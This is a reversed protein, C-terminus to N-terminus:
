SCVCLMLNRPATEFQDVPQILNSRMRAIVLTPWCWLGFSWFLSGCAMLSVSIQMKHGTPHGRGPTMTLPFLRARFSLKVKTILCLFLDLFIWRRMKLRTFVNHQCGVQCRLKLCQKPGYFLRKLAGQCQLPDSKLRPSAWTDSADQQLLRALREQSLSAPNPGVTASRLARPFWPAAGDCVCESLDANQWIGSKILNTWHLALVISLFVVSM